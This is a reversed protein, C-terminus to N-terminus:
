CRATVCTANPSVPANRLHSARSRDRNGQTNSPGRESRAFGSFRSATVDGRSPKGLDDVGNAHGANQGLMPCRRVGTARGEGQTV